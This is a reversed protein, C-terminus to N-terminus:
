QQCFSAVGSVIKGRKIYFGSSSKSENLIVARKLIPTFDLNTEKWGCFQLKSPIIFLDAVDIWKTSQFNSEAAKTTGERSLPQAKEGGLHQFRLFLVQVAAPHRVSHLSASVRSFQVEGGCVRLCVSGDGSQRPTDQTEWWQMSLLHVALPLPRRLVSGYSSTYLSHPSEIPFNNPKRTIVVAPHDRDIAQLRLWVARDAPVLVKENEKKSIDGGAIFSLWHTADVRNIDVAAEDLGKEDDSVLSRHLMVDIGPERRHWLDMPRVERVGSPASPSVTFSCGGFKKQQWTASGRLPHIEAGVSRWWKLRPLWTSTVGDDTWVEGELPAQKQEELLRSPIEQRSQVRVNSYRAIVESGPKVVLSTDLRVMRAVDVPTSLHTSSSATADREAKIHRWHHKTVYITHTISGTPGNQFSLSAFIPGETIRVSVGAGLYRSAGRTSSVNKQAGEPVKNIKAFQSTIPRSLDDKFLQLSLFFSMSFSTAAAVTTTCGIIRCLFATGVAAVASPINIVTAFPVPSSGRFSYEKYKSTSLFYQNKNQYALYDDEVDALISRQYKQPTQLLWDSHNGHIVKLNSRDAMKEIESKRHKNIMHPPVGVIIQDLDGRLAAAACVLGFLFATLLFGITCFTRCYIGRAFSDLSSSFCRPNKSYLSQFDRYERESTIENGVEKQSRKRPLKVGKMNNASNRLSKRKQKLGLNVLYPQVEITFGTLLSLFPPCCAMIGIGILTGCILQIALGFLGPIITRFIYAGSSSGWDHSLGIGTSGIYERLEVRVTQWGRRCSITDGLTDLGDVDDKHSRGVNGVSGVTLTLSLPCRTNSTAFARNSFSNLCDKRRIAVKLTSTINDIGVGFPEWSVGYEGKRIFRNPNVAMVSSSPAYVDFAQAKKTARDRHYKSSRSSRTVHLNTKELTDLVLLVLISCRCRCSTKKAADANNDTTSEALVSRYKSKRERQKHACRYNSGMTFIEENVQAAILNRTGFPSSIIWRAEIGDNRDNVKKRRAVTRSDLCPLPGLTVMTLRRRALPNFVDFSYTSNDYFNTTKPRTGTATMNRLTAGRSGAQSSMGTMSARLLERARNNATRAISSFDDAVASRSTGTIADHHQMLAAAQRIMALNEYMKMKPLSRSRRLSQLSEPPLTSQSSKLSDVKWQVTMADNEPQYFLALAFAAEVAHRSRDLQRVLYKLGPRTGFYGSWDNNVRDAFPHFEATHYSPFHNYSERSFASSAFPLHNSGSSWRRNHSRRYEDKIHMAASLSIAEQQRIASVYRSLSSYYAVFVGKSNLNSKIERARLYQVLSDLSLFRSSADLYRFDDGMPMLIHNVHRYIKGEFKYKDSVYKVPPSYKKKDSIYRFWSWWSSFNDGKFSFMGCSAFEEPAFLHQKAQAHAALALANGLRAVSAVDKPLRHKEFDAFEPFSYHEHLTCTLLGSQAQKRRWHKQAMTRERDSSVLFEKFSTVKKSTPAFNWIFNLAKERRLSAKAAYPIRNIIHSHYRLWSFVQATTSSHGFADIQWSIDVPLLHPLSLPSTTFHFCPTCVGKIWFLCSTPDINTSRSNNYMKKARIGPPHQFLSLPRGSIGSELLTRRGLTLQDIIAEPSPLAEDHSVWGGGVIELQGAAHLLRVLGAWTLCFPGEASTGVGAYDYNERSRNKENTYIQTTDRGLLSEGWFKSCRLRCSGPGLEGLWHKPDRERICARHFREQAIAVERTTFPPRIRNANSRIGNGHWGRFRSISSISSVSSREVFSSYKSRLTPLDFERQALFRSLYATGEWTFTRNPGVLLELLVSRLIATVDGYNQDFTRLWGPDIHSTPVFHIVTLPNHPARFAPFVCFITILAFVTSSSFM